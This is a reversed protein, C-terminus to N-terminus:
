GETITIGNQTAGSNANIAAGLGGFTGIMGMDVQDLTGRQGIERTEMPNGNEITIREHAIVSIQNANPRNGDVAPSNNESQSIVRANSYSNSGWQARPVIHDIEPVYNSANNRDLLQQNSHDSIGGAVGAPLATPVVNPNNALNSAYVGGHINFPGGGYHATTSGTRRTVNRYDNPNTPERGIHVRQITSTNANYNKGEGIIMRQAPTKPRYDVFGFEQKM